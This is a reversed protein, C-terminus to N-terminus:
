RSYASSGAVGAFFKLGEYMADQTRNPLAITLGQGSYQDRITMLVVCDSASIRTEDSGSKSIILVDVGLQQLPETLPPLGDDEREKKHAYSKQRM